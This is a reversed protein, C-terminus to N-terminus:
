DSLACIGPKQFSDRVLCCYGVIHRCGVSLGLRKFQCSCSSSETKWWWWPFCAGWYWVQQVFMSHRAGPWDNVSRSIRQQCWQNFLTPYLKKFAIFYFCGWLSQFECLSLWVWHTRPMDVFYLCCYSIVILPRSSALWESGFADFLTSYCRWTVGCCFFACSDLIIVFSVAVYIWTKRHKEHKKRISVFMGVTHVTCTPAEVMCLRTRSLSPLLLEWRLPFVMLSM